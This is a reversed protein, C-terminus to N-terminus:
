APPYFTSYLVTTAMGYLLFFLVVGRGWWGEKGGRLVLHAVVWPVGPACTLFRNVVQVHMTTACMFTMAAWLYMSPLKAPSFFPDRSPSKSPSSRHGLTLVLTTNHRAYISLGYISIAFMPAALLFNPLQQLQYYRLFGNNWYASQVYSYVLPIAANCWLPADTAGECFLHYAYAQVGIFPAVVLLVYAACKLVNAST